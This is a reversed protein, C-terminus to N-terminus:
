EDGEEELEDTEDDDGDDEDDEEEKTNDSSSKTDSQSEVAEIMRKEAEELKITTKLEGHGKKKKEFPWIARPHKAKCHRLRAKAAM